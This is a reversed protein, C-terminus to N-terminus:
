KLILSFPIKHQIPGELYIAPIFGAQQIIISHAHPIKVTGPTLFNPSFLM